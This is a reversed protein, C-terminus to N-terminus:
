NLFDEYRFSGDSNCHSLYEQEAEKNNEVTYKGPYSEDGFVGEEWQMFCSKVIENEPKKDKAMRLVDDIQWPPCKVCVFDALIERFGNNSFISKIESKNM